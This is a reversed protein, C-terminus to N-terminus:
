KHYTFPNYKAVRGVGEILKWDNSQYVFTRTIGFSLLKFFINNTLISFAYKSYSDGIKKIEDWYKQDASRQESRLRFAALPVAVEYLSEYEAFQIWLKYDAGYPYNLDLGGSKFWLERRWFMNEQMLYGLCKGHFFGRSILNSANSTINRNGYRIMQANENLVSRIGTLWKVEPYKSFISHVVSFTWSMYLDDSNLWCLIEGTSNEFGIRVADYQGKDKGVIVKDIHDKYKEIISLSEDTSGGDVVIYEIQLEPHSIKQSIISLITGELYRGMNYNPTVVSIKFM